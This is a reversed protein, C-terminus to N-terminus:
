TESEGNDGDENGKEEDTRRRRPPDPTFLCGLRQRQHSSAPCRLVSHRSRIAASRSPFTRISHLFTTSTRVPNVSGTRTPAPPIFDAKNTDEKIEDREGTERDEEETDEDDNGREGLRRETGGGEEAATEILTAGSGIETLDAEDGLTGREAENCTVCDGEGAGGGDEDEGTM